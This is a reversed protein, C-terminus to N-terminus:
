TTVRFRGHMTEHGDGCFNDCLFDLTGATSPAQLPVRVIKGPVLDVRLKLDPLNFGHPFDLAQVLLVVSEGAKLPIEDPTFAFRRATIQIERPAQAKVALATLSGLLLVRRKM